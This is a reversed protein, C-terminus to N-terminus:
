WSFPNKPIRRVTEEIKCDKVMGELTEYKRCTTRRRVIRTGTERRMPKKYGMSTKYM